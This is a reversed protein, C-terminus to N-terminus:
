ITAFDYVIEDVLMNVLDGEIRGGIERCEVEFDLLKVLSYSMDREAVEDANLGIFDMWRMVEEMVEDILVKSGMVGCNSDLYEILCDFVFRKVQYRTKANEYGFFNGFKTWMIEALTDVLESNQFKSEDYSYKTSDTHQMRGSSDELSSSCCSDNSFSAELVSGPSLHNSNKYGSKESNTQLCFVDNQPLPNEKNLACLLEQFIHVTTRKTSTQSTLENLKAELLAGLSDGTLLPFKDIQNSTLRKRSSTTKSKCYSVNQNQNRRKEVKECTNKMPSSFRFMTGNGNQGQHEQRMQKGNCSASVNYGEGQKRMQTSHRKQGRSVLNNRKTDEVKGPARSRTQGSLSRNLAVFDKTNDSVADCNKCSAEPNESKLKMRETRVSHPYTIAFKSKNRTELIRSAAGILRSTNKRSHHTTTKVPSALKPHHHHHHHHKKSRSLVNKLQLAEAGFRTVSRRDAMTKQLKQPRFDQRTTENESEEKNCIAKHNHLKDRNVSSPMSELGMLRAVLSPTQVGNNCTSVGNKNMNPFGGSNEDAILKLKPRKEDGGFKKSAEKARDPPLLRKSFLKKKAFRRNWDFLQFFIGVCGGTRRPKNETVALSSATVSASDSM